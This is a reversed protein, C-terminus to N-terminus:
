KIPYFVPKREKYYTLYKFGCKKVIESYKEFNFAIRETNHADSGLTICEGGLKKFEKLIETDLMLTHGSYEMYTKTNIELAKGEHALLRLLPTLYDGFEKFKIDREKYPAYRAIYDFHGLINFDSFEVATRYMLEFARAYARKYDKGIYYTKLYPDTGDIFHISAIISDFSYRSCFQKIKAISQPQLGVEIGKLIEINYKSSLNNIEAQQEAPNFEFIKDKEQPINERKPADLDLHDTICIGSLGRKEAEKVLEEVTTHSDPSYQSHTHNDYTKMTRCIYHFM